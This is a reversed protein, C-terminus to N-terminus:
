KQWQYLFNSSNFNLTKGTTAQAESKINNYYEKAKDSLSMICENETKTVQGQANMSVLGLMMEVILTLADVQYTIEVNKKEVEEFGKEIEEFRNTMEEVWAGASRSFDLMQNYTDSFTTHELDIRVNAYDVICDIGTTSSHIIIKDGNKLSSEESLDTIKAYVRNGRQTLAM